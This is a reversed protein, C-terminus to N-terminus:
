RVASLVVGLVSSPPIAQLNACHSDCRPLWGASRQWHCGGCDLPGNVVRVSPYLGYVREGRIQASLVVTPTGLLGALHSMGSDNGVYCKAGSILAAVRDAAENTYKPGSFPASRVDSTPTWGDIVAVSLGSDLLLRELYLWNPLGWARQHHATFPGLIVDARRERGWEVASQDLDRPQPVKASTGLEESYYEWRPKSLREANERSYSEYPYFTQADPVPECSTGEYGRFLRVWPLQWPAGTRGGGLLTYSVRKSPYAVRVGECATMCLLADGIGDSTCCVQVTDALAPRYDLCGGCCAVGPLRTQPTCTGHKACGFTKLRVSTPCTPCLTLEGTARGLYRCPAARERGHGASGQPSVHATAAGAGFWSVAYRRDTAAIGCVQCGHTLERHGCPASM